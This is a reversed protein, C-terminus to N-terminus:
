ADLRDIVSSALDSRNLTYFHLSRQGNNILSQCLRSVVSLGLERVASADDGFSRMQMQIWRPVEAGCGEAFRTIGSFSHIPMIGPTIPQSIQAARVRALFDTFADANYFFQTVAENAGNAFKTSLAALDTAATKAHPHVEPYCAVKIYFEQGFEQRIFRVLDSAYRFEGGIVAGSPIDGRLAILRKIGWQSYQNLLGIMEKASAAMCSIHPAVQYGEDILLRVASLSKDRTVGGAGFTVSYYEPDFRQLQRATLKLKELGEPTNPPFFEFSYKM